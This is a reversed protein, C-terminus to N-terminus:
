EGGAVLTGDRMVNFTLAVMPSIDNYRVSFKFRGALTEISPNSGADYSIDAGKLAGMSVLGNLWPQASDVVSQIQRDTAPADTDNLFSAQLTNVLYLQMRVATDFLNEPLIISEDDYAYNGMNPGWIRWYGGARNITTIGVANLDNADLEDMYVATGDELIPGACNARKNSASEFPINSNQADISQMAVVTLTSLHYKKGNNTAMPWFVKIRESTYANSVKWAKAAARTENDSADIDAAGSTEWKGNISRCKTDMAHYVTPMQSWSPAVIVSPIIDLMSYLLDVAQLGTRQEGDDGGGIIEADTILTIDLEDFTATASTFGASSIDKIKVQYHGDKLAYETTYDTGLVKGTIAISSLVVTEKDIWATKSVLTLSATGEKTHEGPDFVNILVIPGINGIGNDFHAKMAECLTFKSWDDSYGLAEKAEEMTGVIVPALPAAAKAISVPATGIYVPLANAGSQDAQPASPVIEGYVGHKYM